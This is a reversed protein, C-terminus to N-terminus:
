IQEALWRRANAFMMAWPSKEHLEPPLYSYQRPKTLREPHPMMITFRGTPDTFGTLGLPSGNPNEPYLIAAHGLADVYRLAVMRDQLVKEMDGDQFHAYGEGHAVVIPMKAGVMDQFFISPSELVEAMVLRGEFRKSRNPLFAPWAHVGPILDKLYALMQCGNCVGLAFTDARAFFTEFEARLSEHFLITAAWGKGAGLVDGYSFGGPAVFGHCDQLHKRGELLDTMTLDVPHFGAKAFAHAMELHGNSGEERLIAVQPKFSTMLAPAASVPVNEAYLGRTNRTIADFEEKACHPEDRLSKISFSLTSWIKQLNAREEAFLTQQQHTIVLREDDRLAGIATTAASLGKEELVHYAQDLHCSEIQLVAGLEENFLMALPSDKKSKQALADLQIDLGKRSAFAMECLTAFLGGDSRDHYALLLNREHLARMASFFRQLLSADAEPAEGDLGRYVALLASGGLRNQGLGLDVLLLVSPVGVLEPTLSACSSLPAVATVVVTLPAKVEGKEWITQMSLSDKGVPIALDLDQCFASISEVGEYLNALDEPTQTAAMWNVSLKISDLSEIPAACLNTIAEGVAMTVSKKPDYLAIMPREGLAIATGAAEELSNAVIACDAVPVQWPGVMPDRCVLGGVTRDAITILFSKDAVAPYQLVRECAEQLPWHLTAEPKVKKAASKAIKKKRPGYLLAELPLDVVCANFRSDRVRLRNSDNLTGVVAMPARERRAIVEFQPLQASKLLIVYREQSENCWLEMPSMASDQSFIASLEIEAGKGAEHVLEPIATALGGAGVDHLALIPNDLGQAICSEIVQQARRQLEANARQVSQFDLSEANAGGALSSASGGGLGIKFAPGGLVVILDGVQGKEKHAQPKPIAGVGGSLMVPKHYGRWQGQEELLLTRFFGAVLPRGFENNYNSAGLPAEIMISGGERIRKPYGITNKEWPLDYNPLNLTSVMYGAVGALPRAGKGTAALDRIEGGAGTAAGPFPAIATPHNHTEAKLTTHIDVHQWGYQEHHVTWFQQSKGRLIAANDAYAVITGQPTQHHTARILDFLAHTKEVDDVIFHARFTKHRCHESQLQALMMLEADTPDKQLDRYLELLHHLDEQDFALGLDVNARELAKLGEELVPIVNPPLPQHEALLLAIESIDWLISETMPDYLELAAKKLDDESIPTVVQYFTIKELYLVTDLGCNKCIDLARSSWPSQTGLRPVRLFALSPKEQLPTAELLFSLKQYDDDHLPARTQLVYAPIIMLPVHRLEEGKGVFITLPLTKFTM